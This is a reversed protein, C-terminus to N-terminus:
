FPHGISLHYAVRPQSAERDTLRYGVDGRVPGVPTAIMLSPGAAVEFAALRAQEVRRWVQGADVFLAGRLRQYIPFRLEVSAEQKAEGGIAEDEEDLPGLKRRAFGRMSTAGGAFFRRDPLLDRSGEVPQALGARLRTALVWEAGLPRYLTISAEASVFRGKGTLGPLSSSATAWLVSGWRPSIRDDVDERLWALTLDSQVGGPEQFADLADPDVDLENYSLALSGRWRTTLSHQYTLGAELRSIGLTYNDELEHRYGLDVTGRTRRGVLLPHWYRLTASQLFRSARLEVGLGRGRGLLNRHRWGTRVRLYDDTWYGIGFSVSRPERPALELVVDLSEAGSEYAAVRIQRFLDLLRLQEVARDLAAPSYTEGRRIDATRISLRELDRPAGEVRTERFHFVPGAAADLVVRVTTSDIYEVAPEVRAHAHGGDQLISTVQDVAASLRRDTFLAGPELPRTLAPRQRAIEAPVGVPVIEGVVVPPGPAIEFVVSLSRDAPNPSLQPVIHARPYGHQALFLRARQLDQALMQPFFTPRQKRLLGREAALALGDTMPRVLDQAIGTVGFSAIQWGKYDQPDPPAQATAGQLCLALLLGAWAWARRSGHEHPRARCDSSPSESLRTPRWPATQPVREM